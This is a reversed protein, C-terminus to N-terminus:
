RIHYLIGTSSLICQSIVHLGELQYCIRAMNDYLVQRIFYKRAIFTVAVRLLIFQLIRYHHDCKHISLLTYIASM